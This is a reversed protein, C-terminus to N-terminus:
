GVLAASRRRREASPDIRLASAAVSMRRDTAPRPDLRNAAARILPRARRRAGAGFPDARRRGPLRRGTGAYAAATDLSLSGSSELKVHGARAARRQVAMQTMWVPFNDLLILPAAGLDEASCRTSSSSPTSRSRSRCTPRWRGPRRAARRGGFRRRGRPQGQDARRRRPGHPSQRRRRRPGRVEAAGAPRAPDQPHRPDQAGTGEVAEVWAATTSAIGSLHCVLNLMTREATLLGRTPAELVLLPTVPNSGPATTSAPSSATATRASAGRRAGAPRRRRRRRRGAAPDGDVGEHHRRRAGDGALHRRPRLAPGRRPRPRDDGRAEDREDDDLEM